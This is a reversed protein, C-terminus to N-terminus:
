IINALDALNDAKLLSQAHLYSLFSKEQFNFLREFVESWTKLYQGKAWLVNNCFEIFEALTIQPFSKKFFTFKLYILNMMAIQERNM